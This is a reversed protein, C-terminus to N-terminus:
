RGEVEDMARSRVVYGSEPPTVFSALAETVLVSSMLFDDHGQAVYCKMTEPALVRYRALWV